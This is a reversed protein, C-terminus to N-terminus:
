DDCEIIINM